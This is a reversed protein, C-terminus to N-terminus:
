LAVVFLLSILSTSAVALAVADYKSAQQEKSQVCTYQVFLSSTKDTCTSPAGGSYLDSERYSVKHLEKGISEGLM